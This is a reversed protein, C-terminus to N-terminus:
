VKLYIIFVLVNVYVQESEEKKGKSNKILCTSDIFEFQKNKDYTIRTYINM